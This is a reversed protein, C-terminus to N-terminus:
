KHQVAPEPLIRPPCDYLDGNCHLWLPRSPTEFWQRRLQKSLRKNLRLYFLLFLAERWQGKHTSNVPSRNPTRTGRAALCKRDKFRWYKWLFMRERFSHQQGRVTSIEFTLEVKLIDIDGSGTNLYMPCCIDARIAWTTLANPMFESNPTRTGRMGLDLCKRDGFRRYNSLIAREHTSFSDQQGRVTLM